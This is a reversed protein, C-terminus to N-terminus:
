RMSIQWQELRMRGRRGRHEKQLGERRGQQQEGGATKEGRRDSNAIEQKIKIEETM